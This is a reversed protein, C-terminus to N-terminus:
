NVKYIKLSDLIMTADSFQAGIDSGNVVLYIRFNPYAPNFNIVHEGSENSSAVRLPNSNIITTGDSEYYIVKIEWMTKVFENMQNLNDVDIIIQLSSNEEVTYLESVIGGFCYKSEPYKNQKIEAKENVVNVLAPSLAHIIPDEDQKNRDPVIWLDSDALDNPLYNGLLETDLLNIELKKVDGNDWVILFKYVESNAKQWDIENIAYTIKLQNTDENKYLQGDVMQYITAQGSHNLNINLIAENGELNNTAETTMLNDTKNFYNEVFLQHGDIRFDIAELNSVSVDQVENEGLSTRFLDEFLNADESLGGYQLNSLETKLLDLDEYGSLVNVLITDQKSQDIVSTVTIHAEGVGVPTMVGQDNITVISENSSQWFVEDNTISSPMITSSLNIASHDKLIDIRGDDIQNSEISINSIATQNNYVAVQSVVLEASQREGDPGKALIHFSCNKIQDDYKWGDQYGPDPQTNKTRYKESLMADVVNVSITGTRSEDSIVYYYESEGEVALKVIYESYVSEVEMEFIVAKSFDLSLSPTQVGGYNDLSADTNWISVTESDENYNAVGSPTASGFNRIRSADYVIQNGDWDLDNSIETTTLTTTNTTEGSCSVIFMGLFSLIIILLIKKM